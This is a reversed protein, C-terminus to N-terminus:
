SQKNEFHRAAAGANMGAQLALIVREPTVPGNHQQAAAFLARLAAARSEQTDYTPPASQARGTLVAACGAM